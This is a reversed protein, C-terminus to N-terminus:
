IDVPNELPYPDTNYCGGIEYIVGEIWILDSWYNGENLRPNYWFVSYYNCDDFAQPSGLESNNFFNNHYIECEGFTNSLSIAQNTNNIFVNNSITLNLVDLFAIGVSNNMCFNNTFIMLQSNQSNFGFEKNFSCNNFLFSNNKSLYSLIGLSNNYCTNNYFLSNEIGEAYIGAESNNYCINNSITCSVADLLELGYASSHCINERIIINYNTGHYAKISSCTNKEITIDTSDLLVIKSDIKNNRIQINHSYFVLVSNGCTNNEVVCNKGKVEDIIIDNHRAYISCNRIIFSASVYKIWIGFDASSNFNYNEIIYPDDVSGSGPFDYKTRFHRNEFIVIGCCDIHQKYERWDQIYKASIFLSSLLVVIISGVLYKRGIRFKGKNQKTM